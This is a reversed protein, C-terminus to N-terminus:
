EMCVVFEFRDVDRLVTPGRPESKEDSGVRRRSLTSPASRGQPHRSSWRYAMSTNQRPQQVLIISTRSGFSAVEGKAPLVLWSERSRRRGFPHCRDRKSYEMWNRARAARGDTASGLQRVVGLNRRTVPGVSRSISWAEGRDDVVDIVVARWTNVV